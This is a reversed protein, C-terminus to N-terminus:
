RLDAEYDDYSISIKDKTKNITIEILNQRLRIWPPNNGPNNESITKIHTETTINGINFFRCYGGEQCSNMYAISAEPGKYPFITSTIEPCICVCSKFFCKDPRRDDKGYGIIVWGKSSKFGQIPFNGIQGEKLYNIKAEIIDITKKANASESSTLINILMIIMGGILLVCLLAIVIGPVQEMLNIAKKNM